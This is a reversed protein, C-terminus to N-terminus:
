DKSGQNGGGGKELAGVGTRAVNRRIAGFPLSSCIVVHFAVAADPSRYCQAVMASHALGHLKGIGKYKICPEGTFHRLSGDGPLHLEPRTKAARNLRQKFSLLYQHKGPVGGDARERGTQRRNVRRLAPLLGCSPKVALRKGVILRVKSSRTQEDARALVSALGNSAEHFPLEPRDAYGCFGLGSTSQRKVAQDAVSRPRAQRVSRLRFFLKKSRADRVRM